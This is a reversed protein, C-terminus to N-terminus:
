VDDTVKLLKKLNNDFFDRTVQFEVNFGYEPFHDDPCSFKLHVMGKTESADLVNLGKISATQCIRFYSEITNLLELHDKLGNM